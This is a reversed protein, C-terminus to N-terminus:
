SPRKQGQKSQGIKPVYFRLFFAKKKSPNATKTSQDLKASASEKCFSQSRMSFILDYSKQVKKNWRWGEGKM